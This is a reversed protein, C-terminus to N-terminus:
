SLYPKVENSTYKKQSIIIKIKKEQFVEIGTCSEIGMRNPM